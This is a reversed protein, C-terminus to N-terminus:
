PTPAPTVKRHATFTRRDLEFSKRSGVFDGVVAARMGVWFPQGDSAVVTEPPSISEVTGCYFVCGEHVTIRDGIRVDVSRHVVENVSGDRQPVLM